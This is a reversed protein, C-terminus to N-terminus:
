ILDEAEIILAEFHKLFKDRLKTTKFVLFTNADACGLYADTCGLYAHEINKGFKIICFKYEDNDWNPVWGENYFDRLHELKRKAIYKKPILPSGWFKEYDESNFQFQIAYNDFSLSKNIGKIRCYEEWSEPLKSEKKETLIYTIEGLMRKTESKQWDIDIIKGNIKLEIKM